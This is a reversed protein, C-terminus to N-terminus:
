TKHHKALAARQYRRDLLRLSCLVDCVKHEIRQSIECNIFNLSRTKLTASQFYAAFHLNHLTLTM